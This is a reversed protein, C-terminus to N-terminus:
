GPCSCCLSLEYQAIIQAHTSFLRSVEEAHTPAATLASAAASTRMLRAKSVSLVTKCEACMGTLYGTKVTANSLGRQFLINYQTAHQTTNHQTTILCKM